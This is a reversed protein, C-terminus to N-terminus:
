WHLEPDWVLAIIWFGLFSNSCFYIQMTVLWPLLGNDWCLTQVYIWIDAKISHMTCDLLGAFHKFLFYLVGAFHKHLFIDASNGVLAICSGLETNSCFYIRVSVLWHLGPDWCLTQASIYKCQYWGTCCDLIGAFNKFLFINESLGVLAIIWCLTQLSSFKTQSIYM